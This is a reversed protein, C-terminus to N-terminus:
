NAGTAPETAVVDYGAAEIMRVIQHHNVKTEDYEVDARGIEVTVNSLPLRALARRVGTVCGGCSMGKIRISEKM